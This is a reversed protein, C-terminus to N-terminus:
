ARLLFSIFNLFCVYTYRSIHSLITVFNSITWFFTHYDIINQGAHVYHKYNCFDNASKTCHVLQQVFSNSKM